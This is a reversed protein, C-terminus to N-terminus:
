SSYHFISNSAFYFLCKNLQTFVIDDKIEFLIELKTLLGLKDLAYCCSELYIYLVM